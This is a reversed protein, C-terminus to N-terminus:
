FFRRVSYDQACLHARQVPHPSEQDLEAARKADEMRGLQALRNELEGSIDTPLGAAPRM